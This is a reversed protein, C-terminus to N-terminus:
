STETKYPQGSASEAYCFYTYSLVCLFTLHLGVCLSLPSILKRSFANYSKASPRSYEKQCHWLLIAPTIQNRCNGINWERNNWCAKIHIPASILGSLLPSLWNFKPFQCFYIFSPYFTVYSFNFVTLCIIVERLQITSPMQDSCVPEHLSRSSDPNEGSSGRSGFISSIGWTRTTANGGTQLMVFNLAWLLLSRTIRTLQAYASVLHYLSRMTWQLAVERCFFIIGLCSHLNFVFWWVFYAPNGLILFFFFDANFVM